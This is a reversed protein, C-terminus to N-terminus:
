GEVQLELTNRAHLGGIIALGDISEGVSSGKISYGLGHAMPTWALRRITNSAQHPPLHQKKNATSPTYIYSNSTGSPEPKLNSQHELYFLLQYFMEKRVAM